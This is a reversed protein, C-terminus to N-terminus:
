GRETYLLATAYAAIGEKRGIADLGEATTAKINLCSTNLSLVESIVKIMYSVYRSIKPQEALVTTDINIISFGAKKIKVAVHKLLILSSINKYKLDTNPFHKGIDMFGAAGLLADCIAHLLVDADSHGALGLPYSIQVGGLMLKRGAAFIHIDYGFGIRLGSISFQASSPIDTKNTKNKENQAKNKTNQM